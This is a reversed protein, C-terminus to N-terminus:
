LESAQHAKKNKFYFFVLAILMLVIWPVDGMLVWPTVGEYGSVMGTLVGPMFQPITSQLNGKPTIIASIGNNGVALLPRGTALAQFQSIQLHQAPALSDGFWADDSVTILLRAEPLDARVVADYAIEYCIYVGIPLGHVTILSQSMNGPVMASMPLNFFQILGRLLNELPVYEGFPVLHRKMYLGKAEGLGIVANYYSVGASVPIGTILAGHAAKLKEELTNFLPKAEAPTLPIAAEPWVILGSQYHGETLSQYTTLINDVEQPDWRLSQQINGQVLSVSLPQGVPHAWPILKLLFALIFFIALSLWAVNAAQMRAILRGKSLSPVIALLFLGSAFVILFSTGYPGLLPAFGAFATGPVAHGLILWPFGTFIWSRLVELLAWLAPYVVLVKAFNHAPFFQQLIFALLAFFGALVMSFLLTILVALWAPTGGFVYIAVFVWSIGIGFFGLGYFFGVLSASKAPYKILLFYLIAPSIFLLWYFHMPAFAFVLAVGALLAILWDLKFLFRM